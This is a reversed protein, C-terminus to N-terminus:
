GLGYLSSGLRKIFRITFYSSNRKQENLYNKFARDYWAGVLILLNLTKLESLLLIYEKAFWSFLWLSYLLKQLIWPPIYLFSEYYSYWRYLFLSYHVFIALTKRKKVEFTRSYCKEKYRGTHTTHTLIQEHKHACTCAHEHLLRLNISLTQEIVKWRIWHPLTEWNFGLAQWQSKEMEAKWPNSIVPLDIHGGM